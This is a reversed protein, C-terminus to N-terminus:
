NKIFVKKLTFKHMISIDLVLISVLKMTANPIPLISFYSKCRRKTFIYIVFSNKFLAKLYSLYIFMDTRCQNITGINYM